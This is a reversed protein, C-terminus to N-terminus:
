IRPPFISRIKEILARSVESLAASFGQEHDPVVKNCDCGLRSVCFRGRDILARVTDIGAALSGDGLALCEVAYLM